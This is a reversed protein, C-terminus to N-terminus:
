KNKNIFEKEPKDIDIWDDETLIVLDENPFNDIFYFILDIEFEKYIPNNEYIEKPLVKILHSEFVSCEYLIKLEPIKDCINQLKEFLKKKFQEM